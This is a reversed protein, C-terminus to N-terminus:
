TAERRNQIYGNTRSPTLFLQRQGNAHGRHRSLCSHNYTKGDQTVMITWTTCGKIRGPTLCKVLMTGGLKVQDGDHQVRDVKTPEQLCTATSSNHFDLKGGSEVVSVDADIVKYTAGTMEKSSGASRWQTWMRLLTYSSFYLGSNGTQVETERM